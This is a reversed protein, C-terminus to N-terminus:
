FATFRLMHVTRATKLEGRGQDKRNKIPLYNAKFSISNEAGHVYAESNPWSSLKGNLAKFMLFFSTLLQVIAELKHKVNM